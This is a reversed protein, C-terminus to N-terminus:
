VREKIGHAAEVARAFAVMEADSRPENYMDYIEEDTLPKRQPPATFLPVPKLIAYEVDFGAVYGRYRYNGRADQYRWAVPKQVPKNQWQELPIGNPHADDVVTANYSPQPMEAMCKTCLYPHPPISRDHGNDAPGNCQPCLSLDPEAQLPPPLRGGGKPEAQEQALWRERERLHGELVGDQWSGAQQQAKVPPWPHMWVGPQPVPEVPETLAARLNFIAESTRDIPWTMEVHYQLAWLAQRAAKRLDTM